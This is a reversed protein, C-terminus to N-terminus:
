SECDDLENSEEVEQLLELRAKLSKNFWKWIEEKYTIPSFKKAARLMCRAIAGAEEGYMSGTTLAGTETIVTLIEKYPKEPDQKVEFDMTLRNNPKFDM